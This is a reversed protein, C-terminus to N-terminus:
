GDSSAEDQVPTESGSSRELLHKEALDRWCRVWGARGDEVVRHVMGFLHVIGPMLSAMLTGHEARVDAMVDRHLGPLRKGTHNECASNFRHEWLSHVSADGDRLSELEHRVGKDLVERALIEANFFERKAAELEAHGAERLQRLFLASDLSGDDPHDLVKRSEPPRAVIGRGYYHSRVSDGEPSQLRRIIQTEDWLDITLDPFKKATRKKWGDWWKTMPADLSCPLCLIWSSLQYNNNTAASVAANFSERIQRQQVNGVGDIFFKSQWIDATGGDDLSGVFADIGWDGPNAEVQRVGPLTACVLQTVMQEFDARAGEISGTRVEHARFSIPTDLEVSGTSAVDVVPRFWLDALWHVPPNPLTRYGYRDRISYRHDAM